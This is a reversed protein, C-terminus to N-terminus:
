FVFVLEEGKLLVLILNEYDRSLGRNIVPKWVSLFRHVKKIIWARLPLGERTAPRSAEPSHSEPTKLKLSCAAMSEAIDGPQFPSDPELFGAAYGPEAAMFPLRCPFLKVAGLECVGWCRCGPCRAWCAASVNGPPISSRRTCPPPLFAPLFLLPLSFAAPYLGLCSPRPLRLVWVGAKQLLCSRWSGSPVGHLFHCRGLARCMLFFLGATHPELSTSPFSLKYWIHPNQM